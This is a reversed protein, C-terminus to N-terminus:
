NPKLSAMTRTNEKDDEEVGHPDVRCWSKNEMNKQLLQGDMLMIQTDKEAQVQSKQKSATVTVGKSNEATWPGVPPLPGTASAVGYLWSTVKYSSNMKWFENFYIIAGSDNKFLPRGKHNCEFSYSGNCVEAAAGAATVSTSKVFLDTNLLTWGESRLKAEQQRKLEAKEEEERARRAQLRVLDVQLEQHSHVAALRHRHRDLPQV